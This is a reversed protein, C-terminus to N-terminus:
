QPAGRRRLELAHLGEERGLAHQTGVKHATETATIDIHAYKTSGNNLCFGDAEFLHRREWFINFNDIFNVSQAACTDKLWRNLMLLRSFREDGRRVTPLPGSISVETNLCRVKNLLDIFDQKLVESQQKVVDLAGTHIVLSKVTPHEATIELIKQSIDSVMDNTFCLVKTNKGFFHKTKNVAGDGVILTQPGTTLEKQLRKTYSKAEYREGTSSSSREKPSDPDQLLSAFRNKQAPLHTAAGRVSPGGAEQIELEMYNLQKKSTPSIPINVYTVGDGLRLREPVPGEPPFAFFAGEPEQLFRLPGGSGLPEYKAKEEAESNREMVEYAPDGRCDEEKSNVTNEEVAVSLGFTMDSHRCEGDLAPAGCAHAHLHRLGRPPAAADMTAGKRPVKGADLSINSGHHNQSPPFRPPPHCHDGICKVCNEYILTSKERPPNMEPSAALRLTHFREPKLKTGLASSMSEYLGSASNKAESRRHSGTDSDTHGLLDALLSTLKERGKKPLSTPRKKQVVVAETLRESGPMAGRTLPSADAEESVTLPSSTRGPETPAGSPCVPTEVGQDAPNPFTIDKYGGCTACIASVTKSTCTQCSDGPPAVRSRRSEGSQVLEPHPPPPSLSGVVGVGAKVSEALPHPPSSLTIPVCDWTLPTTATTPTPTATPHPEDDDDDKAVSKPADYLRRLSTPVQYDHGLASLPNCTCASPIDAAAQPPSALTPGASPTYEEGSAGDLSGTYSSFSSSYSSHSGTTAIGSDSSHQRGIEQLQRPPKAAPHTGGGGGAGGGHSISLREVSPMTLRAFGIPSAATTSAGPGLGPCLVPGPAPGPEAWVTLRSGISGDSQSTDSADSSGSISRDDGASPAYVSSATSYRHSLLSVRRELEQAEQNVKEEAQVAAQSGSPDPLVPQLGFPSRTPSVGRVICDFLFSIHESEASAVFFVGAWYGCRTGGEFVFGNPVPGYRRLDPLNWHGIVVPPTDRALALLNNCLHLTAPGGELKTGPLVGVNFRHVEGLSYRIRVEWALLTDKSDFGLIAAQSLCLVALTYPAGELGQGSVELGCIDELTVSAREAHGRAKDSKDKFVLLMLCDAVPSPKRLVIWRTKWKKGDRFRVYGEVVVSDTM